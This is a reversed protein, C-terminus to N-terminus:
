RIKGVVGSCQSKARISEQVDRDAIAAIHIIHAVSVDAVPIAYIGAAVPLIDIHVQHTINQPDSDVAPTGVIEGGVIGEDTRLGQWLDIRIPKPIREPKREVHTPAM